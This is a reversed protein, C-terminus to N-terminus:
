LSKLYELLYLREQKNLPAFTRGEADPTNGAAYEHGANSNGQISTDFRFGGSKYQKSRFGVVDPEFDRSGVWFVDSRYEIPNGEEDVDPDGPQRKPLLLEYLNPVSGNHLYPATAWIGNLARAKYAQLQKFPEAPTPEDFDGRRITTASRNKLTKALDWAWEAVRRIPTKDPDWSAVVNRASFSVLSAVPQVKEIVMPGAAADVNQNHAMGSYGNYAVTNIALLPDTGVKEFQSMRTVIKRNPDDRVINAHCSACRQDFIESGREKWDDRLAGLKDEPWVPSQLRRLSFEVRNLNRQDISSKFNIHGLSQDQGGIRASISRGEKRQWDLTGFVGIVQGVNRGLPGIGGNSVLGTWQVYDHQAIDWLYPYSTPANAPNYIAARLEARTQQWQAPNVAGAHNELAALVRLVINSQDEDDLVADVDSRARDMVAAPVVKILVENLQEGSMIYQLVRNYIRGFADLRSFGYHTRGGNPQNEDWLPENTHTYAAIRNAYKALDADIQERSDYTGEALVKDHFRTRKADDSMTKQLAGAMAVLFIELDAAAPGGDIRLGRRVDNADTYNIQSTHCAACTFGMYKKGQYVDKTMGVPLGDPNSLTAERPLYRFSNLYANDRFADQNNEQELHLFFDYPLLNSGQSAAYFWLSDRADWNQPLYEINEKLVDGDIEDHLISAVGRSPDDDRFELSQSIVGYVYWFILIPVLSLIGWYLLKKIVSLVFDYIKLVFRGFSTYLKIFKELM